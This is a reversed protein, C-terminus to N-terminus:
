PLSYINMILIGHNRINKQERVLLKDGLIDEKRINCVSSARLGTALILCIIVWTREEAYNCNKPPRETLIALEEETYFKLREEQGKVMQVKFFVLYQNNICWNVFTRLNRLYNNVSEISLDKKRLFNTWEIVKAKTIVHISDTKSLNVDDLFMDVCFTLDKIYKETVGRARKELLFENFISEITPAESKRKVM